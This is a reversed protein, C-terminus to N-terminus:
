AVNNKEMIYVLIFMIVLITHENKFTKMPKSYTRHSLTVTDVTIDITTHIPLM